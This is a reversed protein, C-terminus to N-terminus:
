PLPGLEARIGAVVGPLADLFAEVQAVTTTRDLSVRVNGHTLVGMAELVHSPSLTSATCASGSAVGYGLRDLGTVLAEGDVYLCSFTVLHPLRDDPDGVVEVDAVEGAVRERIRAVLAHQAPAVTAREESVAQLAAAAALAAPVNEFGTAREDTRDDVPFPPRWRVGKRVLLLGVGAPGGWKHASGAATAWGSPLPLHGLSACADVFLPLDGLRAAIDAVPQVTGVEHNASQVAVAAVPEGVSAVAAEVAEPSVRGLRDAAAGAVPAGTWDAAHRVAAHEVDSVVLAPGARSRGAALGLLGLHVAHTGSPTFTVEDPRVELCAAVVERANDLLMRATRGPGHLRRPDAYGADMAALLAERAAPHLPTSSAADLDTPGAGDARTEPVTGVGKDPDEGPRESTYRM